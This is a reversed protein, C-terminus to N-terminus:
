ATSKNPFRTQKSVACPFSTQFFFRGASNLIGPVETSVEGKISPSRSIRMSPPFGPAPTTANAAGLRTGTVVVEVAAEEEAEAGYVVHPNCVGLVAAVYAGPLAFRCRKAVIVLLRAGGARAAGVVINPM